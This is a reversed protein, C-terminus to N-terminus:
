KRSAPRPPAACARERAGVTRRHRLVRLRFPLEHLVDAGFADAFLARFRDIDGTWAPLGDNRDTM